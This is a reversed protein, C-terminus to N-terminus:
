GRVRGLLTFPGGISQMQETAWTVQDMLSKRYTAYDVAIGDLSYSLKTANANSDLSALRELANTRITAINEADTAMGHLM